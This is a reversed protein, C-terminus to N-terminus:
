AVEPYAPYYQETSHAATRGTMQVVNDSMAQQAREANTISAAIAALRQISVEKEVSFQGEMEPNDFM